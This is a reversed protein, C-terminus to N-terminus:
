YAGQCIWRSQRPNECNEALQGNLPTDPTERHPPCGAKAPDCPQELDIRANGLLVIIRPFVAAPPLLRRVIVGHRVITNFALFRSTIPPQWIRNGFATALHATALHATALHTTALHAQGLEPQMNYNKQNATPCGTSFVAAAPLM